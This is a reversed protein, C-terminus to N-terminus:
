CDLVSVRFGFGSVSFGFGTARLGFGQVQFGFDSVRFGFVTGRFGFGFAQVLDTHWPTAHRLFALTVKLGLLTGREYSLGM